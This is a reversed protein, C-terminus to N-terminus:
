EWFNDVTETDNIKKIGNFSPCRFKLQREIPLGKNCKWAKSWGPIELCGSCHVRDDWINDNRNIIKCGMNILGNLVQNNEM